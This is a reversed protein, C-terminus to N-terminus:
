SAGDGSEYTQCEEPIALDAEIIRALLRREEGGPAGTISVASPYPVGDEGVTCTVTVRECPVGLAEAKDLIYAGTKEGIITKMLKNECLLEVSITRDAAFM